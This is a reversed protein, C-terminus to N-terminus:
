FEIRTGIFVGTHTHKIDFRKGADTRSMDSLYVGFTWMGVRLGATAPVYHGLLTKSNIPQEPLGYAYLPFYGVSLFGSTNSARHLVVSCSFDIIPDGAMYGASMPDTRGIPHMTYVALQLLTRESRIQFAASYLEYPGFNQAFPSRIFLTGVDLTPREGSMHVATFLQASATPPILVLM